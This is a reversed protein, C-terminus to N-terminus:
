SPGYTHWCTKDAPTALAKQEDNLAKAKADSYSTRPWSLNPFIPALPWFGGSTFPQYEGPPPGIWRVIPTVGPGMTTARYRIAKNYGPRYVGLNTGYVSACFNGRKYHTLFGNFRVWGGAQTYAGDHTWVRNLADVYINRGYTDTPNGISTSAHGYV